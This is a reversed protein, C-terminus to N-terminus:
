AVKFAPMVEKAFLEIAAQRLGEGDPTGATAHQDSLFMLYMEDFGIADHWRRIEQTVFDPTGAVARNRAFTEYGVREGSAVRQLVPDHVDGKTGEDWYYKHFGLARDLWEREVAEKTPAVWAERMLVIRPESGVKACEARYRGALEAMVPLTEMPLSYWGDGLRAARRLAPPSTGGVLIPPGGPQVAGPHVALDAIQFFRGEHAYSGTTWAKRLIELTEDLRPGREAYPIGFGEYEYPRYGPGVGLIARGNSIQDLTSVQECVDVPHHLPALYIGTGLRLRETRAAIAALVTLPASFDGAEPTFSHHGVYTAYFGLEELREAAAFTRDLPREHEPYFGRPLGISFRMSGYEYCEPPHGRRWAGRLAVPLFCARRPACISGISGGPGM